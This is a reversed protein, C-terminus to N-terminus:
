PPPPLLKYGVQVIMQAEGEIDMGSDPTQVVVDSTTLSSSSTSTVTSNSIEPLRHHHAFGLAPTSGNHSSGNLAVTFFLVFFLFFHTIIYSDIVSLPSCRYSFEHNSILRAYRVHRYRYTVCFFIIKLFHKQLGFAM